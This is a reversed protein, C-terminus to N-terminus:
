KNAETALAENFHFDAVNRGVQLTPKAYSPVLTAQAHSTGNQVATSSTITTTTVMTNGYTQASATIVTQNERYGQARTAWGKGSPASPPDRVAACGVISGLCAVMTMTVICRM